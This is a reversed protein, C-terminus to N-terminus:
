GAVFLHRVPLVVSVYAARLATGFTTEVALALVLALGRGKEGPRTSRRGRCQQSASVMAWSWCTPRVRAVRRPDFDARGRSPGRQGALEGFILEAADIDSGPTAHRALRVWLYADTFAARVFATCGCNM